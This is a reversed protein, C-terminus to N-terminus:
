TDWRDGVMAEISKDARKGVTYRENGVRWESTILTSSMKELDAGEIPGLRSVAVQRIRSGVFLVLSEDVEALIRVEGTISVVLVALLGAVVVRDYWSVIGIATTIALGALLVAIALAAAHRHLRKLVAARAVTAHPGVLSRVSRLLIRQRVSWLTSGLGIIKHQVSTAVTIAAQM